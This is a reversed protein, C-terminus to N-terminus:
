GDVGYRPWERHIYIDRAVWDPRECKSPDTEWTHLLEREEHESLTDPIKKERMATLVTERFPVFGESLPPGNSM